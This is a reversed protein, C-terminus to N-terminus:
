FYTKEEPRHPGQRIEIARFRELASFSHGGAYQILVDGAKLIAASVFNGASDYIKVSLSGELLILAESGGKVERPSLSHRHPKSEWGAPHSLGGVQLPDGPETFFVTGPDEGARRIITAILGESGDFSPPTEVKYIKM